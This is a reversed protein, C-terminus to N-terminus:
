KRRKQTGKKNRRRRITRKQGRRRITRRPIKSPKRKRSGGKDVKPGRNPDLWSFWGKKENIEKSTMGAAPARASASSNQACVSACPPTECSTDTSGQKYDDDVIVEGLKDEDQQVSSKLAIKVPSKANSELSKPTDTLM